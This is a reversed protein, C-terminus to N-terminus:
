GRTQWSSRKEVLPSREERAQIRALQNIKVGCNPQYRDKAARRETNSIEVIKNARSSNM